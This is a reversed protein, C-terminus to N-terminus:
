RDDGQKPKQLTNIVQLHSLAAHPMQKTRILVRLMVATVALGYLVMLGFGYTFRQSELLYKKVIVILILAATLPLSPYGLYL